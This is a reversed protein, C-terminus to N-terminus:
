KGAGTIQITVPQDPDNSPISVSAIKTDASTPKFSLQFTCSKGSPITKGSCHDKGTVLTFQAPSVTESKDISGIILDKVGKTATNRVTFTAISKTGVKKVGFTKYDPTVVLTPDQTFSVNVAIDRDMLITCAGKRACPTWSAFVSGPAPTAELSVTTNPLFNVSCPTAASSCNIGSYPASVVSGQGTGTVQLWMNYPAALPKILEANYVHPTTDNFDYINTSVFTGGVSIRDAGIAYGRSKAAPSLSAHTTAPDEQVAPDVDTVFISVTNNTNRVIKFTRFQQPFDRLSPTEVEWFGLEPHAPDPSPQPTVTNLHRHGAIWLLLNPFEHLKALLMYDTVINYPFLPVYNELYGPAPSCSVGDM